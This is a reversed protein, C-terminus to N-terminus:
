VALGALALPKRGLMTNMLIGITHATVKAAIRAFFGAVSKAYHRSLHFQEQLQANVREVALRQAAEAKSSVFPDNATAKQNVRKPAKLYCRFSQRIDQQLLIDNYAKDGIVLELTGRYQALFEYAVQSDYHNAAVLVFDLIVGTLSVLTTLKCGFYKMAKAACRGYAAVESWGSNKPRKYGTVPVPASDIAAVTATHAGLLVTCAMRVALVVAWLARKRRNYRSREPLYPFYSRLEIKHLRYFHDERPDGILEQYLAVTIIESDPCAPAPGPRRLVTAIHPLKLTDDVITYITTLVLAKDITALAQNPM